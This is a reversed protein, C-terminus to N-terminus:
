AGVQPDHSLGGVSMAPTHCEKEEGAEDGLDGEGPTLLPSAIGSNTSPPHCPKKKTLKGLPDCRVCHAIIRGTM